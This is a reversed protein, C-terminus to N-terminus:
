PRGRPAPLAVAANRDCTLRGHQLELEAMQQFSRKQAITRQEAPPAPYPRGPEVHYFVFAREGVVAASPHRARTHDQARRGPARLLRGNLEWTVADRSRFVALGEHPDTLMWYSGRWRFVYPAEQYGYGRKARDNVDGPCPGKNEWAVLDDSVSWQIGGGAGVRYYARFEGGVKILTADIPDPGAWAPVNVKTWGSL